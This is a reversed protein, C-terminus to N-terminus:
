IIHTKLLVWVVVIFTPISILTTFTLPHDWVWNIHKKNLM